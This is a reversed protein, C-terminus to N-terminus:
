EHEDLSVVVVGWHRLFSQVLSLSEGDILLDLSHQQKNKEKIGVFHFYM